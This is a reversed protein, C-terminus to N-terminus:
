QRQGLVSRLSAVVVEPSELVQRYTFRLVWFGLAQLQADRARDSEFAVRTGHHRFGDTEVILSHARWLFDVEYGGVRANVEPGPLRHRRCLRLFLRELEV